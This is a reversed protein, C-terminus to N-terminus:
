CKSIPTAFYRNSVREHVTKDNWETIIDGVTDGSGVATDAAARDAHGHYIVWAPDGM